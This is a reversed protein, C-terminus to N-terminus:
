GGFFEELAKFTGPNPGAVMRVKPLSELFTRGYYRTLVRQDLVVIAGRDTTRRILRGFGQRFKIVAQPVTYMMFANGGAAEIAEARAQLVPETPVRFPLKPLIVCQLADGAVDVGEWFSDTAFLVSSADRRFRDLLQTRSATGQKLAAIGVDRLESELREHTFDMAYFSTFLVFAHGKTIALVRRVAEVCADLFEPADPAPLDKPVCLIAQKQFDFPTELVLTEIRGEPLRDLGTRSRFYGFDNRVTLTASTLIVTSLKAYVWEALAEGVELPCRALRVIKPNYASIEIWRVTKPELTDSTAEALVSALHALRSGYGALQAMEVVVPSETEGANPPVKELLARLKVCFEACRTLEGVAPLVFTGHVARLAASALVDPTLRWKVDRGVQRCEAATADRVAGFAAEVAERAAELAPLFENYVLNHIEEYDKIRVEQSDKAIKVLIFPVLGREKGGETRVFRGLLALAGLRTAQVGFYETASDEISHAEDLVVRKYAPLVALSTFDGTEKKVAVDSFLLHHNTVVLDAKAVARRARMVFCKKAQACRMGVCTDVESCVQEWVDRRPVFPLDSKSGDETKEAWEGLARVMDAADDGVLVAAEAVARELKRLCVYNGRGKVLVATFPEDLCKQLLPIDKHIIQEQLNITRTSIVVRERNRVAWLAAPLLYALTKGVGTPAEIAAIGGNNFARAAAVMMRKQQPRVEFHDLAGMLPGSPSLFRGLEKVDLLRIDKPRFPEIVVYVRSIANDVIYCGHGHVGCISAVDLDADSPGLDGSPHNHLVIEGPEVAELVAPVAEAHGRACVRVSEILGGADARAAFFVERGGAEAIDHRMVEAAVEHIRTSAAIGIEEPM